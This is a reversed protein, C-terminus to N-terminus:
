AKSKFPIFYQSSCACLFSIKRKFHLTSSKAFEGGIGGRLGGAPAAVGETSTHVLWPHTYAM